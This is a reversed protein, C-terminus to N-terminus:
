AVEKIIFNSSIDFFGLEVINLNYHKNNIKDEMEIIM